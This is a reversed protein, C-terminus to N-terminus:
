PDEIKVKNIHDCGSKALAQAFAHLLIMSAYERGVAMYDSLTALENALLDMFDVVPANRPAEMEEGVSQILEKYVNVVKQADVVVKNQEDHKQRAHM